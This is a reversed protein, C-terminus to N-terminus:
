ILTANRLAWAVGSLGQCRHIHFDIFHAAGPPLNRRWIGERHEELGIFTFTPSIQRGGAAFKM